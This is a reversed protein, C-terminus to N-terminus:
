RASPPEASVRDPRSRPRNPAHDIPSGPRRRRQTRGANGDSGASPQNSNPDGLRRAARRIPPDIRSSRRGPCGPRGACGLFSSCDQAGQQISWRRPARPAPPDEFRRSMESIGFPNVGLADRRVNKGPTWVEGTDLIIPHVQPSRGRRAPGQLDAPNPHAREATRPRPGPFGGPLRPRTAATSQM